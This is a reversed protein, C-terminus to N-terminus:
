VEAASTEGARAQYAAPTPSFLWQQNGNNAAIPWLHPTTTSNGGGDLAYLKNNGANILMAPFGAFPNSANEGGLWWSMPSATTLPALILTNNSTNVDIVLSEGSGVIQLQFVQSSEKSAVMKWTYINGPKGQVLAIPTNPTPSNSSIGLYAYPQQSSYCSLTFTGNITM